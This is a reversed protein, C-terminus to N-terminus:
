ITPKKVEISNKENLRKTIQQLPKDHKRVMEKLQKLYNEFPFASINDLPGFKKYDEAIHLLEHVNFSM